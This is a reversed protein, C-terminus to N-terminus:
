NPHRTLLLNAEYTASEDKFLLKYMHNGSSTTTDSEAIHNSLALAMTTGIRDDELALSILYYIALVIGGALAVGGAGAAGAIVGGIGGVISTTVTVATKINEMLQTTDGYDHEFCDATILVNSPITRPGTFGFLQLNEAGTEPRRSDKPSSYWQNDNDNVSSGKEDGYIPTRVVHAPIGLEVMEDTIISFIVYPEDDGGWEPDTEDLCWLHDFTLGFKYKPTFTPTGDTGGNDDCVCDKKKLKHVMDATVKADKLKHSRHIINEWEDDSIEKKLDLNLYKPSFVMRKSEYNINDHVSIVKQLFTNAGKIKQINKRLINERNGSNGALARKLTHIAAPIFEYGAANDLFQRLLKEPSIKKHKPKTKQKSKSKLKAKPQKKKSM